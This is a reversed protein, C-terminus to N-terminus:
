PVHKGEALPPDIVFLLLVFSFVDIVMARNGAGTGVNVFLATFCM